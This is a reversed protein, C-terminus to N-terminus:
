NKMTLNNLSYYNVYMKLSKNLKKDFFISIRALFKSSRIFSNALNNKIYTKLIELEVLDLSYIPSYPPQWDDILEITYDNIGMHKPLEIALKLLFVNAFNVYKSFIKIFAKDTKLYAIQVKKSTHM